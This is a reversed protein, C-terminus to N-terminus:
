HNTVQSCCFYLTSLEPRGYNRKKKQSFYEELYCWQPCCKERKGEVEGNTNPKSPTCVNLNLKVPRKGAVARYKEYHLIKWLVQM